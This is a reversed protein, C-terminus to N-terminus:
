QTNHLTDQKDVSDIHLDFCAICKISHKDLSDNSSDFCMWTNNGMVLLEKNSQAFYLYKPCKQCCRSIVMWYVEFQM